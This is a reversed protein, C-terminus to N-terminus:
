RRPGMWLRPAAAPGPPPSLRAGTRGRALPLPLELGRGHGGASTQLLPERRGRVPAEHGHARRQAPGNLGPLHPGGDTRRSAGGGPCRPPDTGRGAAGGTRPLWRAVARGGRGATARSGSLDRAPRRSRGDESAGCTGHLHRRRQRRRWRWRFSASPRLRSLAGAGRDLVAARAARAGPRAMGARQAFGGRIPRAEPARAGPGRNAGASGRVPDPTGPRPAWDWGRTRLSGLGPDGAMLSGGNGTCVGGTGAFTPHARLRRRAEGAM